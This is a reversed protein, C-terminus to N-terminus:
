YVYATREGFGDELKHKLINLLMVLSTFFFTSFTLASLDQKLVRAAGRGHLEGEVLKRIQDAEGFESISYKFLSRRYKISQTERLIVIGGLAVSSM